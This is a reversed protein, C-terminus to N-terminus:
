ATFGSLSFGVHTTFYFVIDMEEYALEKSFSLAM